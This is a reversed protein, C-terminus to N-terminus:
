KWSGSPNIKEEKVHLMKIQRQMLWFAVCALILYICVFALFHFLQGQVPSVSESVKLVNYIIWPQRGVETVVWGAEVAIFGLPTCVAIFKLYKKNFLEKKFKFRIAIFLLSALALLSGCGVMIQFAIHVVAVPPIPNNEKIFDNLGKVEANFDGYALFSLAYPIKIGFKTKGEKVNPLGGITLGAGKETKFQGEMAALKIPQRKAVDKASYDGSVFQLLAFVVGVSLAITMAKKHIDYNNKKLLLIAHIGAVGFATAEFAAISMHLTQSIWAPNFMAKLPDINIAQGNVMEFGAPSNMWANACVVFIGSVVGAVGVILGSFWHVWKNLRKWGYLFLGICVSEVFFATGEWSFPMGIIAGAHKMFGPWLLGLEFSLATGSVAGIAFFIAVGKSWAKTLRYYVDEGRKLWLYHSIVMLFPMTMGICAFIIHFGLSLSMTARAFFLNDM